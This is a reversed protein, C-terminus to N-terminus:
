LAVEERVYLKGDRLLALLNGCWCRLDIDGTRYKFVDVINSGPGHKPCHVGLEVDTLELAHAVKEAVEPPVDYLVWGGGRSIMGEVMKFVEERWL